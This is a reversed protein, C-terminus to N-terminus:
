KNIREAHHARLWKSNKNENPLNFLFIACVEFHIRHVILIRDISSFLIWRFCELHTLNIVCINFMSLHTSIIFFCIRASNKKETVFALVASALLFIRILKYDHSIFTQFCTSTSVMLACGDGCRIIMMRNCACTYKVCLRNSKNLM